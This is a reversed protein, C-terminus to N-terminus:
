ASSSGVRHSCFSYKSKKQVGLESEIAAAILVTMVNSSLDTRRRAPKRRDREVVPVIQDVFLTRMPQDVDIGVDEFGLHGVDEAARPGINGVLALDRLSFSKM